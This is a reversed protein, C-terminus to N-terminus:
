IGAYFITHIARTHCCFVVVENPPHQYPSLHGSIFPHNISVHKSDISAQINKNRQVLKACDEDRQKEFERRKSDIRKTLVDMEARHRTRFAQERRKLSSYVSSNRNSREKEELADGALKTQQAEQYHHQGALLTQRKRYNILDRSWKIPKTDVEESVSQQLATLQQLHTEELEKTYEQSKREFDEM